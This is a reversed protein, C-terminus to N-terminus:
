LLESKEHDDDLSELQSAAAFIKQAATSNKRRRPLRFDKLILLFVLYKLSEDGQHEEHQNM